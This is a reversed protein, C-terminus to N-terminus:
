ARVFLQADTEQKKSERKRSVRPGSRRRNMGLHANLKDDDDLEEFFELYDKTNMHMLLGSLNPAKM